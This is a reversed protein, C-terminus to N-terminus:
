WPRPFSCGRTDGKDVKPKAAEAPKADAAPAAAPKAADASAPKAADAPAAAAPKDQAFANGGFALASTLAILAFLKRM